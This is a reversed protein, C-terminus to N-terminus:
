KENLFYFYDCLSEKMKVGLDGDHSGGEEKLVASPSGVEFAQRM